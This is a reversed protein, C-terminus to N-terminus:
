RLDFSLKKTEDDRLLELSIVAQSRVKKFIQHAKQKSTLRHGNVARIVDGNKLGLEKAEKINELNAIRLGEVQGDIVHPEITAEKL